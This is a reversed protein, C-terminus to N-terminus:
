LHEFSNNIYAEKTIYLRLYKKIFIFSLSLELLAPMDGWVEEELVEDGEDWDGFIYQLDAIYLTGREPTTSAFFVPHQIEWLKYDLPFISTSVHLELDPSVLIPASIM